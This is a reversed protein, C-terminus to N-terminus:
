EAILRRAVGGRRDYAFDRMSSWDSLDVGPQLGSGGVSRDELKLRQRNGGRPPSVFQTLATVILADLTMGEKAAIERLRQMIPDPIEVTSKM